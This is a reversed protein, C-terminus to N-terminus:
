FRWIAQLLMHTGFLMCFLKSIALPSTNETWLLVLRGLLQLNMLLTRVAVCRSSLLVSGNSDVSLLIRRLWPLNWEIIEVLLGIRRLIWLLLYLMKGAVSELMLHCVMVISLSGLHRYLMLCIMSLILLGMRLFLLIGKWWRLFFYMLSLFALGVGVLFEVSHNCFRGGASCLYESSIM